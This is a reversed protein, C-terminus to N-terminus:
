VRYFDASETMFDYHDQLSEGVAVDNKPKTQIGPVQWSIVAITCILLYLPKKM